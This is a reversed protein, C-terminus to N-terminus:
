AYDAFPERDPAGFKMGLLKKAEAFVLHTPIAAATLAADGLVEPLSTETGFARMYMRQSVVTECLQREIVTRVITQAEHRDESTEAYCAQFEDILNRIPLFATNIRLQDQPFMYRAAVHESELDFWAVDPDYIERIELAFNNEHVPGTFWLPPLRDPDRAADQAAMQLRADALRSISSGWRKLWIDAQQILARTAASDRVRVEDGDVELVDAEVLPRLRDYRSGRGEGLAKLVDAKSEPGNRLLHEVMGLRTQEGLVEFLRVVHRPSKLIKL